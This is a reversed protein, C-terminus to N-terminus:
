TDFHNTGSHPLQKISYGCYYLDWSSAPKMDDYKLTGMPYCATDIVGKAGWGYYMNDDRSMTKSCSPAPEWYKTIPGRNYSDISAKNTIM